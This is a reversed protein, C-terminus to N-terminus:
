QRSRWPGARTRVPPKLANQNDIYFTRNRWRADNGKEIFLSLLPIMELGYIYSTEGFITERSDDTKAAMPFKYTQKDAFADSEKVAAAIINALTAADANIIYSPFLDWKLVRRPRLRLPSACRWRM